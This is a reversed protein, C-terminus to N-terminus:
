NILFSCNDMSVNQSTAMSLINSMECKIGTTDELVLIRKQNVPMLSKTMDQSKKM